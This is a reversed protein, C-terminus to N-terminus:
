EGINPRDQFVSIYLGSSKHSPRKLMRGRFVGLCIKVLGGKRIKLHVDAHVRCQRFESESRNWQVVVVVVQILRNGGQYERGHLDDVGGRLQDRGWSLKGM